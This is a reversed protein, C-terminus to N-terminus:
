IELIEAEKQKFMEDIKVIYKDTIGQIETQGKRLEDETMEKDKEMKKLSDIADKRHNRIVVKEDEGLKSLKKILDKRRDETLAPVNLRILNGERSPNLNLDAQRIAKEVSEIATTDYVQVTILRPEPTNILGMQILPVMSGYYDVPINEIMGGSARAGRIKGLETKFHELTKECNQKFNDIQGTM